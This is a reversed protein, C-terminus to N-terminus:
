TTKRRRSGVGLSDTQWPGNGMPETAYNPLDQMFPHSKDLLAVLDIGTVGMFWIAAV